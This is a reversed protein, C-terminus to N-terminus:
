ESQRRIIRTVAHITALYVYFMWRLWTRDEYDIKQSRDHHRLGFGNAIHFLASEDAKIMETKVQPRLFELVGVLDLVAHRLDAASSHRDQFLRVANAVPKAVHDDDVETPLDAAVLARFDQPGIATVEGRQSIACAPDCMLLVANMEERYRRRGASRDFTEYHWGCNNYDHFRGDVPRSVLDHMAEVMDLTTDQDWFMSWQEYPWVNERHLKRLFYAERDRGVRGMERDYQDVCDYGFAEDFYHDEFLADWVSTVLKALASATLPEAKPGRGQREAFYRRPSQPADM